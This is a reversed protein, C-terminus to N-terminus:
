GDYAPARARSPRPRRRRTAFPSRRRACRAPHGQIRRWDRYRDNWCRIKHVTGVTGYASLILPLWREVGRSRIRERWIKRRLTGCINPSTDDVLPRGIGASSAYTASVQYCSNTYIQYLGGASSDPELVLVQSPLRRRAAQCKAHQLALRVATRLSSAAPRMSRRLCSSSMASRTM